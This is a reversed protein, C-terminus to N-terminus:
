GSVHPREDSPWVGNSAGLSVNLLQSRTDISSPNIHQFQNFTSRCIGVQAQKFSRASEFFNFGAYWWWGEQLATSALTPSHPLPITDNINPHFPPPIIPPLAEEVLRYPDGLVGGVLLVVIMLQASAEESAALFM